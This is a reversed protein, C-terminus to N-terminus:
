RRSRGRSGVPLWRPASRASGLASGVDRLEHDSKAQKVLRRTQAERLAEEYHQQILPGLNQQGYM